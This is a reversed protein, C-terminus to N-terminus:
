ATCSSTAGQTISRMTGSPSETFWHHGLEHCVYGVLRHLLGQPVVGAEDVHPLYVTVKGDYESIAATPYGWVFKLDKFQRGKSHANLRQLTAEVGVKLNIGLM